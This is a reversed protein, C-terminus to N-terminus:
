LGGVEALARAIREREQYNLAPPGQYPKTYVVGLAAVAVALDGLKDSHDKALKELALRLALDQRVMWVFYAKEKIWTELTKSTALASEKFATEAKSGPTTVDALVKPPVADEEVLERVAVHDRLESGLRAHADRSEIFRKLRRNLLALRVNSVGSITFEPSAGVGTIGTTLRVPAAGGVEPGQLVPLNGEGEPRTKQNPIDLVWSWVPPAENPFVDSKADDVIRVADYMLQADKGNKKSWRSLIWLQIRHAWEGHSIAAGVDKLPRYIKLHGLLTETSVLGEAVEIREYGKGAMPPPAMWSEEELLANALARTYRNGSEPLLEGVRADLIKLYEGCQGPDVLVNHFAQLDQVVTPGYDEDLKKITPPALRERLVLRQLVPPAGAHDALARSVAANGAARQMGLVADARSRPPAQSRTASSEGADREGAHRQLKTPLM